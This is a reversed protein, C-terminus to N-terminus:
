VSLRKSDQIKELLVHMSVCLCIYCWFEREKNGGRGQEWLCGGVWVYACVSIREWERNYSQTNILVCVCMEVPEKLLNEGHYITVLVESYTFPPSKLSWRGTVWTMDLLPMESPSCNIYCLRQCMCVCVSRMVRGARNWSLFLLYYSGLSSLCHLM